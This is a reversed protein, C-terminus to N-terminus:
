ERPDRYQSRRVEEADLGPTNALRGEDRHPPVAVTGGSICATGRSRHEAQPPTTCRNAAAHRPGATRVAAASRLVRDDTGRLYHESGAHAVRGRRSPACYPALRVAFDR